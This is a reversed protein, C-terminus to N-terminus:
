KGALWNKVEAALTPEVKELQPCLASIKNKDEPTLATVQLLRERVINVFDGRIQLTQASKGNNRCIIKLPLILNCM